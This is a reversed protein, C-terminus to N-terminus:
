INEANQLLYKHLLDTSLAQNTSHNRIYKLNFSKKEDYLEFVKVSTLKKNIKKIKTLKANLTVILQPM